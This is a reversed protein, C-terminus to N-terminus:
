PTQQKSKRQKEIHTAKHLIYKKLIHRKRMRKHKIIKSYRQRKKKRQNNRGNFEAEDRERGM